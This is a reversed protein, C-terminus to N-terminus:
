KCPLIGKIRSKALELWGQMYDLSSMSLLHAQDFNGLAAERFYYTILLLYHTILRSVDAKQEENISLKNVGANVLM